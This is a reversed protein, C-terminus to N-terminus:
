SLLLTTQYEPSSNQKKEKLAYLANDILYIFVRGIAQPVALIMVPTPPFQKDLFIDLKGQTGRFSELAIQYNEELLTKVDIMEKQVGSEQSHMLMNKVINDARTGHEKIKASNTKLDNLIDEIMGFADKILKDKNAALEEHLEGVLEISLD